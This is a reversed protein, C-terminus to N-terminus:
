PMLSVGIGKRLHSRLVPDLCSPVIWTVCVSSLNPCLFFEPIEFKENVNVNSILTMKFTKRKKFHQMKVEFNHFYKILAIDYKICFHVLNYDLSQVQVSNQFQHMVSVFVVVCVSVGTMDWVGSLNCLRSIRRRWFFFTNVSGFDKLRQKQRIVSDCTTQLM